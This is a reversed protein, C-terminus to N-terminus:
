NAENLCEIYLSEMGQLMNKETFKNEIKKRAEDRMKDLVKDPKKNFDIIAEALAEASRTPVIWGEKEHEILEQM